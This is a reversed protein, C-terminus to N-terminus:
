YGETSETDRRNDNPKVSDHEHVVKLRYDLDFSRWKGAQQYKESVIKTRSAILFTVEEKATVALSNM